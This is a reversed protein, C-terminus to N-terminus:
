YHFYYFVFLLARCIKGPCTASLMGATAPDFIQLQTRPIWLLISPCNEMVSMTRSMTDEATGGGYRQVLGSM